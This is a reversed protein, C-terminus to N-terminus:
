PPWAPVDFDAHDPGLDRDLRLLAEYGRAGDIEHGAILEVERDLLDGVAHGPAVDLPQGISVLAVCRGCRPGGRERCYPSGERPHRRDVLAVEGDLIIVAAIQLVGINREVGAAAALRAAREAQPRLRHASVFVTHTRDLIDNRFHFPGFLRKRLDLFEEEVVVRQSVVQRADLCRALSSPLSPTVQDHLALALTGRLVRSIM